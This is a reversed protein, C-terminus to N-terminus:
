HKGEVEHEVLGQDGSVASGIEEFEVFETEV